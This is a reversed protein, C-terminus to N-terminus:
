HYDHCSITDLKFYNMHGFIITPHVSDQCSQPPTLNLNPKPIPMNLLPDLELNSLKKIVGIGTILSRCQEVLEGCSIRFTEFFCQDYGVRIDTPINHDGEGDRQEQM